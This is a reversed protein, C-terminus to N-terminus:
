RGYSGVVYRREGGYLANTRQADEWARDYGEDTHVRVRGTEVGARAGDPGTYPGVAAPQSAEHGFYM